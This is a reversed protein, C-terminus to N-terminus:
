QLEPSQRCGVFQYDRIWRGDENKQKYEVASLATSFVPKRDSRGTSSELRIAGANSFWVCISLSSEITKLWCITDRSQNWEKCCYGHSSEPKECFKKRPIAEAEKEDGWLRKVINLVANVQAFSSLLDFNKM